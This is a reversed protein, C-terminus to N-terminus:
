EIGDWETLDSTDSQGRSHVLLFGAHAVGGLSGIAVLASAGVVVPQFALLSQIVEPAIYLTATVLVTFQVIALFLARERLRWKTAEDTPEMM